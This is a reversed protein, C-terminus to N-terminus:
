ATGQGMLRPMVYALLYDTFYLYLLMVTVTVVVAITGSWTESGTPWTVKRLETETEILLDAAKPRNLLSHVVYAAAALVGLTLLMALDLDGLLPLDEVFPESKVGWNRLQYQLGGFCGYAILGFVAWFATM